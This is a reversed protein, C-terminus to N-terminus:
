DTSAGAPEQSHEYISRLFVHAIESINKLPIDSDTLLWRRYIALLGSTIFTIYYDANPIDTSINFANDEIIAEILPKEIRRIQEELSIHSIINRVSSMDLALHVSLENLLDPAEDPSSSFANQRLSDVILGINENLISDFLEDISAYHLYFTKRDIDAERALASINIKDIDTNEALRLYASRIAKETRIYRRDNKDPSKSSKM